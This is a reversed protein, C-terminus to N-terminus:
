ERDVILKRCVIHSAGSITYGNWWPDAHMRIGTLVEGPKCEAARAVGDLSKIYNQNAKAFVSTGHVLESGEFRKDLSNSSLVVMVVSATSQEGFGFRIGTGVFSEPLEAHQKPPKVPWLGDTMSKTESADKNSLENVDTCTLVIEKIVDQCNQPYGGPVGAKYLTCRRLDEGDNIFGARYTMGTVAENKGPCEMLLGGLENDEAESESIDSEESEDDIADPAKYEITPSMLKSVALRIERNGLRVETVEPSIRFSISSFVIRGNSGYEDTVEIALDKLDVDELLVLQRQKSNGVEVPLLEFGDGDGVVNWEYHNANGAVELLIHGNGRVSVEDRVSGDVVKLTMRETKPKEDRSNDDESENKMIRLVAAAIRQTDSQSDSGYSGLLGCYTRCQLSKCEDGCPNFKDTVSFANITLEEAVLLVFEASDCFDEDFTDEQVVCATVTFDFSGIELPTGGLHYANDDGEKFSMGEPLEGEWSWVYSSRGSRVIEISSEYVVDKVASKLVATKIQPSDIVQKKEKICKGLGDLEYGDVCVCVGEDSRVTYADDCDKTKEVDDPEKVDGDDTDDPPLDIGGGWPFDIPADSGGDNIGPDAVIVEKEGNCAAVSLMVAVILIAGIKKM